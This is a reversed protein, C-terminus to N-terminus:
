ETAKKRLIVKPKTSVPILGITKVAKKLKWTAFEDRLNYIGALERNSLTRMKKGEAKLKEKHKDKLWHFFKRQSTKGCPLDVLLQNEVENKIKNASKGKRSWAEFIPYPSNYISM